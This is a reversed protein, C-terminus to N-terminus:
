REMAGLDINGNFRPTGNVDLVFHDGGNLGANVAPSYFDLRFTGPVFGPPGYLNAGGDPISRLPGNLVNYGFWFDRSDWQLAANRGNQSVLINNYVYIRESESVSVNGGFDFSRVNNVCTNNRVRVNQARFCHVGNGGNDFCLNNEIMTMRNYRVGNGGSQSNYFDDVVIGNGDSPRGLNVNNVRNENSYSTNNRIIIGYARSDNGRYQPQYVSIGSHQNRDWYANNHTINWECLIWDSQDFAIGGGYCNSVRCDRVTVHHCRTFKIGKTLGTSSSNTVNFGDIRIFSQDNASLYGLVRAGERVESKVVIEGGAYGSRNISVKENYTGSLVIVEDGGSIQNVAHQITQWPTSRNLAQSAVRSNSGNNGVYYRAAWVQTSCFTISLLCAIWLQVFANRLGFIMTAPDLQTEFLGCLKGMNGLAFPALPTKKRTSPQRSSGELFSSDMRKELIFFTRSDKILSKQV